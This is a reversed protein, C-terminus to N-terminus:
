LMKLPVKLLCKMCEELRIDEIESDPTVFEAQRTYSSNYFGLLVADPLVIWEYGNKQLWRVCEWGVDGKEVIYEQRYEDQIRM